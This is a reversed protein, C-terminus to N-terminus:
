ILFDAIGTTRDFCVVPIGAILADIAVNPLPDLRSPLLLLDANAYAHEIESTARVIKVQAEIGARKIQDALYVSIITDTEPEYGNGIWVFRFKGGGDTNIVRNACEVFLDLGKRM